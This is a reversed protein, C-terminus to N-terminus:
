GIPRCTGRGYMRSGVIEAGFPDYRWAGPHGPTVVDTHGEFLLAREGPGAAWRIVANLRNPAVEDLQVAFGQRDAWDAVWRAAQAEGTGAAPDWVSNIGVLAATLEILENRDIAKLLHQIAHKPIM